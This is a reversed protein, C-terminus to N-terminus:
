IVEDVAQMLSNADMNLLICSSQSFPYQHALGFDIVKLQATDRDNPGRYGIIVNGDHLDGHAIPSDCANHLFDLAKHLQIFILWTFEEPMDEFSVKLESLQCCIPFTTM